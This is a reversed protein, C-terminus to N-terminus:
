QPPSSPEAGVQPMNNSSKVGMRRAITQAVEDDRDILSKIIDAESIQQKLASEGQLEMQKKQMEGQAAIQASRDNRDAQAHIMRLKEEQDRKYIEKEKYALKTRLLKLNVNAYLDAVIQNYATLDIGPRGEKRNQMSQLAADKLEQKEADTPRPNFFMGYDVMARGANILQEIAREGIVGSYSKMIDKRVKAALTFRRMFSQASERKIANMALGLPRIASASSAVSMKQTGVPANPDPTAGLILPNIGTLDEM